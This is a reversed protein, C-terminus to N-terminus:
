EMQMTMIVSKRNGSKFVVAKTSETWEYEWPTDTGLDELYKLNIATAEPFARLLKVLGPYGNRRGTTTFGTFTTKFTAEGDPLVRRWNPFTGPDEECRAIWAGKGSAKLFRYFGPKMGFVKGAAENIPSVLNLRRGDTSVALLGAEPKEADIYEVHIYQMFYRTEDDSISKSLFRLEDALLGPADVFLDYKM